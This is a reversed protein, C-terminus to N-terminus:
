FKFSLTFHKFSLMLLTSSVWFTIYNSVKKQPFNFGYTTVNKVYLKFKLTSEILLQNQVHEDPKTLLQVKWRDRREFEM